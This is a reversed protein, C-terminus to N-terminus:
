GAKVFVHKDQAYATSNLDPIFVRPFLGLYPKLSFERDQRFTYSSYSPCVQRVCIGCAPLPGHLAQTQLQICASRLQLSCKPRHLVNMRSEPCCEPCKRKPY